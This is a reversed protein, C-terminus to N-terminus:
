KEGSVEKELKGERETGGNVVAKEKVREGERAEGEEVM